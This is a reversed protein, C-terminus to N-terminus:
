NYKTLFLGRQLQFTFFDVGTQKVVHQSIEAIINWAITMLFLGGNPSYVEMKDNHAGWKHSDFGQNM